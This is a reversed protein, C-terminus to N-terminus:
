CLNLGKIFEFGDGYMSLDAIGDCVTGVTDLSDWYCYGRPNIEVLNHDNAYKPYQLMIRFTDLIETKGNTWYFVDEVYKMTSKEFMPNMELFENREDATNFAAFIERDNKSDTKSAAITKAYLM